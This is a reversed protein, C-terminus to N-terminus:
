PLPLVDLVTHVVVMVVVVTVLEDVVAVVVAVTVVDAERDAKSLPAVTTSMGPVTGDPTLRAEIVPPVTVVTALRTGDLITFLKVAAWSAAMKGDPTDTLVRSALVTTISGAPVM